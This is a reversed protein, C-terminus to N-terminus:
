LRIGYYPGCLTQQRSISGIQILRFKQLKTFSTQPLLKFIATIFFCLVQSDENKAQSNKSFVQPITKAKAEDKEYDDDHLFQSM